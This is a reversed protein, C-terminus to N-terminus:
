MASELVQSIRPVATLAFNFSKRPNPESITHLEKIQSFPTLDASGGRFAVPAAPRLAIAFAILLRPSTAPLSLVRRGVRSARREIRTWEIQLKLGVLELRDQPCIAHNPLERRGTDIRLPVRKAIRIPSNESNIVPGPPPHLPCTCPPVRRKESIEVAKM